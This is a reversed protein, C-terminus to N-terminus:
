RPDYGVVSWIGSDDRRVLRELYVRSVPGESVEVIARVGDNWQMSFAEYPIEPEGVIGGPTVKLNVFTLSVSLPDLQWPSHGGDVQKQDNQAAEMDVQVRVDPNFSGNEVESPLALDPAIQKAIELRAEGLVRVELGAQRWRLSDETIELPGGAAHGIAVHSAPTFEGEAPTQIVSSSGFDLVIRGSTHAIIRSPETLPMLPAFGAIGAAEAPTAVMQGPDNELVAYGEPVAYVFGTPDVGSGADFEAYTYTTQIGNQVATRLQLPLNTEKDVWLEYTQGGPPTVELRTAARGAIVDEGAEAHPYKMAREAEARLDLGSRDPDPLLPLLALVKESPRVQWKRQGDNVTLTGDELRTAYGGEWSWVEVRRVVQSEGSLTRYSKELVGHYSDIKNVARSMAYAVDRGFMGSSVAFGVFLVLAAAIGVVAQWAPRRPRRVAMGKTLAGTDSDAGRSGAGRLGTGHSHSRRLDGADERQQEGAASTVQEVIRSGLEAPAIPQERLGKVLRATALLGAEETTKPAKPSRENRMDEVMADVANEIEKNM